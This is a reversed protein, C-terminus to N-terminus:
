SLIRCLIRFSLSISLGHFYPSCPNLHLASYYTLFLIYSKGSGPLYTLLWIHLWRASPQVLSCLSCHTGGFLPNDLDNKCAKLLRSIPTVVAIVSGSSPCALFTGRLLEGMLWRRILDPVWKKLIEAKNVYLQYSKWMAGLRGWGLLIMWEGRLHKPWLGKEFRRKRTVSSRWTRDMLMDRSEVNIYPRIGVTEQWRWWQGLWVM